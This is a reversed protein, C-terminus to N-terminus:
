EKEDVGERLVAGFRRLKANESGNVAKGAGGEEGSVEKEAAAKGGRCRAQGQDEGEAHEDAKEGEGLRRLVFGIEVAEEPVAGDGGV